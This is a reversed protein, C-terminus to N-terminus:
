HAHHPALQGVLGHVPAGRVRLASGHCRVAEAQSRAHPMPPAPQNSMAMRERRM